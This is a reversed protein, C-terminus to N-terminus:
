NGMSPTTETAVVKPASTEEQLKATEAIKRDIESDIWQTYEKMEKLVLLKVYMMGEIKRARILSDETEALTRAAL